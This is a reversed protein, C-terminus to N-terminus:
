RSTSLTRDSRDQASAERKPHLSIPKFTCGSCYLFLGSCGQLTSSGKSNSHVARNGSQDSLEPGCICPSVLACLPVCSQSLVPCLCLSVVYQRSVTSGCTARNGFTLVLKIGSSKCDLTQSSWYPMAEVCQVVYYYLCLVVYYYVYMSQATLYTPCLCVGGMCLVCLYVVVYYYVGLCVVYSPCVQQYLVCLTTLVCVNNCVCM